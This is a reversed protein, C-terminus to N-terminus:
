AFPTRTVPVNVGALVAGEKLLQVANRLPTGTSTRKESVVPTGFIRIGTRVRTRV